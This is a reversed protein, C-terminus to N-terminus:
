HPWMHLFSSHLVEDNKFTADILVLESGYRLLLRQQWDAQHIFMFKSENNDM